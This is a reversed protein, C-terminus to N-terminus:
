HCLGLITRIYEMETWILHMEGHVKLRPTLSCSGRLVIQSGTELQATHREGVGM